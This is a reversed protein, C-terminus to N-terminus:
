RVAVIPLLTMPARRTRRKVCRCDISSLKKVRVFVPTMWDRRWFSTPPTALTRVFVTELTSPLVTVTIAAKTAMSIRLQCSVIMASTSSGNMTMACRRTPCTRARMAPLVWSDSDSIVAIVCSVRDTEPM